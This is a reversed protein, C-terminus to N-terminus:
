VKIVSGRWQVHDKDFVTVLEPYLLKGKHFTMVGFASIWNLPNDETYSFAEAAPDALCGTDIGYRTGSYDTFPIVKASHLHGTVIHKGAYVTNNYPAHAGGKFRHKVVVDNNIWSSWCPAWRNSFHDKLHVGKLKALEPAMTAIRTELRGDHNGLTWSLKCNRPVIDEIKALVKQAAEIEEAVTPWEEWSHPHRSVQPFDLVDGNLILVRPRLEDAFKLFARMATTLPGPWIHADSGILAIGNLIDFHLRDPHRVGNRTMSDPGTIQRGYRREMTLRRYCIARESIGLRKAAKKDGLEEVLRIFEADSCKARPDNRSM